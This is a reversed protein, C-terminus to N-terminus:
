IGEGRTVYVTATKGSACICAIYARRNTTFVEVAGAPVPMGTTAVAVVSSDGFEIFVTEPGANYVRAASNGSASGSAPNFATASTTSTASVTVTSAAAGPTFAVVNKM